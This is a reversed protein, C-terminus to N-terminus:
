RSVQRSDFDVVIDKAIDYAGSPLLLPSSLLVANRASLAFDRYAGNDDFRPDAVIEATLVRGDRDLGIRISVTWNKAVASSDDLIWRREVQARIFDKVAYIADAAHGPANTATTSSEGTGDQHRPHPPMAPPPQRLQALLKLRVALADAPSLARQPKAAPADALKPSKAPRPVNPKQAPASRQTPLPSAQPEPVAETSQLPAAEQAQQQPIPAVQDAAPSETKEGLRVLNIPIVQEVPQTSPPSVGFLILLIAAAHLALSALLAARM